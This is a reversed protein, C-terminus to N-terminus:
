KVVGKPVCQMYKKPRQTESITSVQEKANDCATISDYLGLNVPSSNTCVFCMWILYYMM